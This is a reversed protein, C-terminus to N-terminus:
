VLVICSISSSKLQSFYKFFMFYKAEVDFMSVVKNKDIKVCQLRHSYFTCMKIIKLASMSKCFGCCSFLVKFMSTIFMIYLYVTIHTFLHLSVLHM